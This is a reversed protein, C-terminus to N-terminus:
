ATVENEIVLNIAPPMPYPKALDWSFDHEGDITFGSRQFFGLCPKNKATPILHAQVRSLGRRRASAVIVGLLAEEVKRGMVRCSLVYDVIRGSAGDVELSVVGTLGSDGFKDSVHLVYLEHAQSSAWATLEAETVRRTTLNMQNTKNLLQVTRALTAQSVPAAHLNMELSGIWEDISGVPTDVAVRQREARMMETRKLDEASISVSDFCRLSLLTSAYLHKDVPWEPVLVEPLAERVRAREIPNDDLFVVSQLGLNLETAIETINQAKDSWNIRHTAFDEERLVMEGHRRIAELATSEENKSAIALLIGRQKLSKLGRQFDVFAEGVSDHGGLRLNEWGADGVIGGWMTDDLDVVILKRARGLVADVAAKIDAVAQDFVDTSFAVKGVYWLKPHQGQGGAQAIWRQTDVVFVNKLLALRDVLRKNMELLAHGVGNPKLDAAGLGRQYAPVTWTPVVVCRVDAVARALLDAFSDVEALIAELALTEGAKLRQFSPVRMEPMTWIVALDPRNDALQLLMPVVQQFPAIDVDLRPGTADEALRRALDDVTFDSVILARVAATTSPTSVTAGAPTDAVKADVIAAASQRTDGVVPVEDNTADNGYVLSAVEVSSGRDLSRLFRAPIGGAVVGPPIEGYVVSGATIVSRAGIRAGPMVTVRGALWVGQGIDIPQPRTSGEDGAADDVICYPGFSVNAGLTISTTAAIRSGFNIYSGAGITIRGDSGTMLTVPSFMSNLVVRADIAIKGLNAIVPVGGKTRVWAGVTDCASLARRAVAAHVIFQVAAAAVIQLRTTLPTQGAGALGHWLKSVLGTM